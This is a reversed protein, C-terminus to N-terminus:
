NLVVVFAHWAFITFKQLDELNHKLKGLVPRAFIKVQSNKWGKSKHWNLINLADIIYDLIISVNLFGAFM